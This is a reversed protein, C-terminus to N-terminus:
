PWLSPEFCLRAAVPNNEVYAIAQSRCAGHFQANWILPVRLEV